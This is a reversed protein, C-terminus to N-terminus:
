SHRRTISLAIFRMAVSLFLTLSRAPNYSNVTCCSNRAQGREVRCKVRATILTQCWNNTSDCGALRCLSIGLNVCRECLTVGCSSMCVGYCSWEPQLSILQNGGQLSPQWLREAMWLLVSHPQQPFCNVNCTLTFTQPPSSVSTYTYSKCRHRCFDGGSTIFLTMTNSQKKNLKGGSQSFSGTNEKEIYKINIHKM